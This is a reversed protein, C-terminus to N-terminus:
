AMMTVPQPPPDGPTIVAPAPIGEDPDPVPQPETYPEPGPPIERPPPSPEEPVKPKPANNGTWASVRELRDHMM